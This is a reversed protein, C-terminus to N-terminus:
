ASGSGKRYIVEYQIAKRRARVVSLGNAQAIHSLGDVTPLGVGHVLRAGIAALREPVVLDAFVLYGGARLVRIMEQVAEQWNAIHHTVKFASVIDFSGEAFPLDRGDLTLFQVNDLGDAAARALRIQEKDVDVGTVDLQHHVAMDIAVRGNGTGVDLYHQGPRPTTHNLLQQARRSVSQSHGPSNVFLKELKGMKM